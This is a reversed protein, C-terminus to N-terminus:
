IMPSIDCEIVYVRWKIINPFNGLRRIMCVFHTSFATYGCSDAGMFKFCLYRQELIIRHENSDLNKIFHTIDTKLDVFKDIDKNIEDLNGKCYRIGEDAM